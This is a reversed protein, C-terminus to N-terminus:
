PLKQARGVDFMPISGGLLCQARPDCVVVRPQGWLRVRDGDKWGAVLSWDLDDRRVLHQGV